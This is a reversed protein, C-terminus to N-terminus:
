EDTALAVLDASTVVRMTKAAREVLAEYARYIAEREAIARQRVRISEHPDWPPKKPRRDRNMYVYQWGAGGMFHFNNEHILATAYAPRPWVWADLEYDLRTAPDFAPSARPGAIRNWWFGESGRSGESWRTISFDSPRILLGDVFQFPQQLDTGSEHYMLTMKAGMDLFIRNQIRKMLPSGAQSSVCVPATGFVEKVLTYGGGRNKQLQGTVPDTRYIEYDRLVRELETENLGALPGGFGQCAPHPPRIHYSVGMGSERVARVVDPRKEAYAEALPATFYFDGRVGHRQFIDVLRLVTAASDELHFHEHCNIAFTIASAEMGPKEERKRSVGAKSGTGPAEPAHPNQGPNAKEWSEFADAMQSFTAWKVKGENVLPVIVQGIWADFESDRLERPHVTIHFVNVRDERVARLSLILGETIANLYAINGEKKRARFDEDPFIGDPLYVIKGEPDHKWFSDINEATPGGSPRWPHISLMEPFTRQRHPNKHDSMVDLGARTAAELVGPYNNGGSWYRVEAEPCAKQLWDIQERMVSSWVEVPLEDGDRGLHAYEHFHLAIEHGAAELDALIVFGQEACLRTFPTQAQVSM